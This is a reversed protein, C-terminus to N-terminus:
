MYEENRDFDWREEREDEDLLFYEPETSEIYALGRGDKAGVAEMVYIEAIDVTALPKLVFRLGFFVVMTAALIINLSLWNLKRANERWMLARNGATNGSGMMLDYQAPAGIMVASAGSLVAQGLQLAARGQPIVGTVTTTHRISMVERFRKRRNIQIIKVMPGLASTFNFELTGLRESNMSSDTGTDRNYVNFLYAVYQKHVFAIRMEANFFRRRLSLIRNKGDGLRFYCRSLYTQTQNGITITHDAGYKHLDTTINLTVKETTTVFRSLVSSSGNVTLCPNLTNESQEVNEMTIATCPKYIASGRNNFVQDWDPNVADLLQFARHSNYVDVFSPSSLILILVELGFTTLLILVAVVLLGPRLKSTKRAHRSNKDWILHRWKLERTLEVFQKISFGVHSFNGRRTRVLITTIIGEIALILLLSSIALIVDDRNTLDTSYIGTAVHRVPLTESLFTAYNYSIDSLDFPGTRGHAANVANFALYPQGKSDILTLIQETLNGAM